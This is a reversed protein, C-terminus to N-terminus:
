LARASWRGSGSAARVSQVRDAISELSSLEHYIRRSDLDSVPVIQSRVGGGYRADVDDGTVEQWSLLDPNWEETSRPM